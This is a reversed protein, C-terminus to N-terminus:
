KINEKQNNDLLCGIVSDCNYNYLRLLGSLETYNKLFKKDINTIGRRNCCKTAIFCQKYLDSIESSNIVEIYPELYISKSTIFVKLLKRYYIPNKQCLEDFEKHDELRSTYEGRGFFYELHEIKDTFKQPVAALFDLIEQRITICSNTPVHIKKAVKFIREYTKQKGYLFICFDLIPLDDGKNILLAFEEDTPNDIDEIACLRHNHNSEYHKSMIDFLLKPQMNWIYRATSVWFDRGAEFSGDPLMYGFSDKIYQKKDRSIDKRNKTYELYEKIRQALKSRM